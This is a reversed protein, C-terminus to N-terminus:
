FSFLHHGRYVFIMIADSYTDDCYAFYFDQKNFPQDARNDSFYWSSCNMGGLSLDAIANTNLDIGLKIAPKDIGVIAGERIWDAPPSWKSSDASFAMIEYGDVYKLPDHWYAYDILKLGSVGELGAAHLMQNRIAHNLLIHVAIFTLLVCLLIFLIIKTYKRKM